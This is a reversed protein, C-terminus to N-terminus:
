PKLFIMVSQITIAMLYIIAAVVVAAGMSSKAAKEVLIKLDIYSWITKRTLHMVITTLTVIGLAFIVISRNDSPIIILISLILVFWMREIEIMTWNWSDKFVSRFRELM